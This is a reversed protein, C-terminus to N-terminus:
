RIEVIQIVDANRPGDDIATDSCFMSFHCGPDFFSSIRCKYVIGHVDSIGDCRFAKPDCYGPFVPPHLRAHNFYDGTMKLIVLPQNVQADSVSKDFGVRYVIDHLYCHELAM